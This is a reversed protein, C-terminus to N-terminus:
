KYASSPCDSGVGTDVHDPGTRKDGKFHTGTITWTPVPGQKVSCFYLASATRMQDPTTIPTRGPGYVRGGGSYRWMRVYPARDGKAAAEFKDWKADQEREEAAEEDDEDDEEDVACRLRETSPHMFPDGAWSVSAVTSIAGVLLLVLWTRM